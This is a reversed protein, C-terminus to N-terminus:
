LAMLSLYDGGIFTRSRLAVALALLGVLFPIAALGPCSGYSKPLRDNRNYILYASIPPVLLIYSHLNSHAVYLVLAGLPKSFLATLAVLFWVFRGLHSRWSFVHSM